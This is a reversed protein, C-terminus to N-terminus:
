WPLDEAEEQPAPGAPRGGEAESQARSDLFKVEFASIENGARAQGDITQGASLMSLTPGPMHFSYCLHASIDLSRILLATNDGETPM